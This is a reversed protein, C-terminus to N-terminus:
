EINHPIGLKWTYFQQGYAKYVTSTYYQSEYTTSLIYVGVDGALGLKVIGAGNTYGWDYYTGGQVIMECDVRHYTIYEDEQDVLTVYLGPIDDGAHVLSVFLVIWIGITLIKKLM